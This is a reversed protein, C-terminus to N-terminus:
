LCFIFVFTILILLISQAKMDAINKHFIMHNECEIEINGVKEADSSSRAFNVSSRMVAKNWFNM